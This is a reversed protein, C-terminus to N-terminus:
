ALTKLIRRTGSSSPKPKSYFQGRPLVMSVEGANSWDNQRAGNGIILRQWMISSTKYAPGYKESEGFKVLHM